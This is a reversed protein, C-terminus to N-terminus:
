TLFVDGANLWGIIAVHALVFSKNLADYLGEDPESVLRAGAPLKSAIVARSDDTSAGDIVIYDLDVGSQGIVNDITEGILHGSNRNPTVISITLAMRTASCNRSPFCTPGLLSSHLKGGQPTM